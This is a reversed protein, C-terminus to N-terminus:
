AVQALLRSGIHERDAEGRGIQHSVFVPRPTVLHLVDEDPLVGRDSSHEIRDIALDTRAVIHHHECGVVADRWDGFLGGRKSHIRAADREGVDPLVAAILNRPSPLPM